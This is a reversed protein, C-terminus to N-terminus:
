AKGPRVPGTPGPRCVALLGAAGEAGVGWFEPRAELEESLRLFEETLRQQRLIRRLTRRGVLRALSAPATMEVVALGASELEAKLEQSTFAHLPPFIRRGVLPLRLWASSPRWDGTEWFNRTLVLDPRWRTEMKIGVPVQGARNVVSLILWRGTVRALERLAAAFPFAYSVPSDLCLVLDFRREAWPLATISGVVFELQLGERAARRRARAVMAPALDLHTVELGRRALPLSFRGPGAGADLVTRVGPLYREIVRWVLATHVRKEPNRERREERRVWGQWFRRHWEEPEM